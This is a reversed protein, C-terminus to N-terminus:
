GEENFLASYVQFQFWAWVDSFNERYLKGFATYQRALVSSPYEALYSEFASWAQPVTAYLVEIGQRELCKATKEVAQFVYEQETM